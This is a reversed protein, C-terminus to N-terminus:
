EAPGDLGLIIWTNDSAVGCVASYKEYSENLQLGNILISRADELSGNGKDLHDIVLNLANVLITTWYDNTCIADVYPAYSTSLEAVGKDYEAQIRQLITDGSRNNHEVITDFIRKEDQTRKEALEAEFEKWRAGIQQATLEALRTREEIMLEGVVDVLDNNTRQESRTVGTRIVPIVVALVLATTVLVGGAWRMMARARSGTKHEDNPSQMQDAM